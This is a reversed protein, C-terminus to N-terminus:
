QKEQCSRLLLPPPAPPYPTRGLPGDDFYSIDLESTLEPVFPPPLDRLTAPEISYLKFFPHNWIEEVGHAGLRHERDAILSRRRVLRRPLARLWGAAAAGSQDGLDGGSTM